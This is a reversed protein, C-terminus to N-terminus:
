EVCVSAEQGHNTPTHVAVGHVQRGLGDAERDRLAQEKAKGLSMGGVIITALLAGVAGGTVAIITFAIM